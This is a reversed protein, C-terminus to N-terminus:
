VTFKPYVTGPRSADYQNTPLGMKRRIPPIVIPMMVGMTALAVSFAAVPQRHIFSKVWGKGLVGTTVAYFGTMTGLIGLEHGDIHPRMKQLM